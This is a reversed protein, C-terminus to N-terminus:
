VREANRKNVCSEMLRELYDAVWKCPFGDKAGVISAYGEDGLILGHEYDKRCLFVGWRGEQQEQRCWYWAKSHPECTSGEIEPSRLYAIQTTM